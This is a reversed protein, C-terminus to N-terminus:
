TVASYPPAGHVLQQNAIPPRGTLAHDPSRAPVPTGNSSTAAAPGLSRSAATAAAVAANGRPGSQGGHRTGVHEEAKGIQHARVALLQRHEFRAVDALRDAVRAPFGCWTASM